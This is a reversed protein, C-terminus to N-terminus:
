GPKGDVRPRWFAPAYRGAWLAFALLWLLSSLWLLTTAGNLAPWEAAVRLFAAGQMMCFARWMAADAAVPMGSHGLTVRSAMGLLMSAFFGIALAHLPAQGLLGPSESWWLSQAAFLAFAPAVWAFSIHLVSLMRNDMAARAWWLWSLRGAAYMAPLDVLWLWRFQELFSLAGHAMSAGVLLRLAWVPSHIVQGRVASGTFFPLMRHAVTAFVPLLFGWVTLVIGLRAWVLGGGVAHVLFSGLGANGLWAALTVYCIHERDSSRFLAIRSLTLAVALWGALSLALGIPLLLPFLLAVWVLSWGGAFLFFAPIFDRAPLDGAGQWRPGATLIFGFIFWPFVGSSILMAHLVSAPVRTLLPWVQMSWLGAYHGGTELSWFAMALLAQVTGGFFMVRHPAALFATRRM